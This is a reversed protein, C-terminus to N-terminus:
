GALERESRQLVLLGIGRKVVSPLLGVMGFVEDVSFRRLIVDLYRLVAGALTIGGNVVLYIGLCARFSWM